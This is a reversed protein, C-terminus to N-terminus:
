SWYAPSMCKNFNQVCVNVLELGPSIPLALEVDEDNATPMWLSLRGNPVLTIAAFELVDQLIDDFGYPRKPPIYGPRRASNM